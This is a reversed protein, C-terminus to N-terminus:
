VATGGKEKRGKLLNVVVFGALFATVIVLISSRVFASRHTVYGNFKRFKMFGDNKRLQRTELVSLRINDHVLKHGINYLITYDYWGSDEAASYSIKKPSLEVTEGFIFTVINRGALVLVGIFLAAFLIVIITSKIHGKNQM